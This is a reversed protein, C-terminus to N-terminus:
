PAKWPIFRGIPKGRQTVIIDESTAAAEDMLRLCRTKFESATITRTQHKAINPVLWQLTALFLYDM